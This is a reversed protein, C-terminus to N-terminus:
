PFVYYSTNCLCGCLHDDPQLGRKLGDKLVKRLYQIVRHHLENHQARDRGRGNQCVQHCVQPCLLCGWQEWLHQEHGHLEVQRVKTRQPIRSQEIHEDRYRKYYNYLDNEIKNSIHTSCQIFFSTFVIM